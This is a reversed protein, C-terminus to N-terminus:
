FDFDLTILAMSDAQKIEIGSNPVSFSPPERCAMPALPQSLNTIRSNQLRSDALSRNFTLV